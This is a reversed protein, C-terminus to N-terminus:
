FRRKNPDIVQVAEINFPVCAFWAIQHVLTAPDSFYDEFNVNLVKRGRTLRDIEKYIHPTNIGHRRAVARYFSRRQAKINRHTVILRANNLEPLAILSIGHDTHVRPVKLAWRNHNSCVRQLAVKGLTGNSCFDLLAQHEYYDHDAPGRRLDEPAGVWYGLKHLVAM